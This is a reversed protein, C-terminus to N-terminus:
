IAILVFIKATTIKKAVIQQALLVCSPKDSHETNSNLFRLL